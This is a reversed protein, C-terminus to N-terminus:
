YGGLQSWIKGFYEHFSVEIMHIYGASPKWSFDSKQSGYKLMFDAPAAIPDTGANRFLMIARPMHVASTVLILTKNTGFIKVYEAAEMRTNSPMSQMAMSTSDIGLTLATRFLVLAQPLESRGRYGSLILRSGPIKKHIRIGEVLRSLANLSLQNNPSLNKDDTHGGGLVIIDCSHSLNNISSDSIQSYKNELSKIMFKPLFPTTIFFFWLGASVIFIRGPRKQKLLYLSIGTLLLLYLIVVPNIMLSVFDRM